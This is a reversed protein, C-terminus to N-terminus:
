SLILPDERVLHAAIAGILEACLTVLRYTCVAGLLIAPSLYPDLVHLASAEFVGLGGPAPIVLSLLWAFGFGSMLPKYIEWDIPTFAFVVFLFTISRLGMFWLTGMLISLPYESLTTGFTKKGRLGRWGKWLKDFVLPHVVILIGTLALILPVSTARYWLALGLAGAIVFLPELMVSLTALELGIGRNQAAVVRGYLHWISGPAYKAPANKLFTVMAWRKPVPNQLLALIWGWLIASWLQTGIAVAIAISLFIGAQPQFQLARVEPWYDNLTKAIFIGTAGLIGWRMFDQLFRKM